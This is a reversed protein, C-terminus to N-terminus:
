TKAEKKILLHKIGKAIKYPLIVAGKTAAKCGFFIFISLGACVLGAGILAVAALPKGMVFLLGSGAIGGIACGIVSAFVAWLSVVTIWLAAYLSLMVSFSVIILLPIWIPSGLVLFIIEWVRMRKKPKTKEKIIKQVPIEDVIQSAIEDTSGIAAVAEEESLGEEMRDDIMEGYFSLREEIEEKPLDSLKKWLQYIFEQKRM